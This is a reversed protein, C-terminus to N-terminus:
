LSADQAYGSPTHLILFGATLGYIFLRYLWNFDLAKMNWEGGSQHFPYDLYGAMDHRRNFRQTYVGNLQRMGKALNGEVTEVLLHYHNTMQCYADAVWNFRECVNGLM